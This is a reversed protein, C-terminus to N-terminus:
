LNVFFDDNNIFEKIKDIDEDKYFWFDKEQDLDILKMDWLNGGMYSIAKLGTTEIVEGSPMGIITFKQGIWCKSCKNIKPLCQAEKDYRFFCM